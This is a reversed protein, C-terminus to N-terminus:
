VLLERENRAKGGGAYPDVRLGRRTTVTQVRRHHLVSVSGPMAPHLYLTWVHFPHVGDDDDLVTAGAAAVFHLKLVRVRGLEGHLILMCRVQKAGCGLLINLQRKTQRM